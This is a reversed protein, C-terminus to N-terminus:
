PTSRLSRPSRTPSSRLGRGHRPDGAPERVVPRPDQRPLSPTRRQLGRLVRARRTPSEVAQYVEGPPVQVGQTVMKFHHILAEMSEEMIHHLYAPDNGIGDPGVSLKAPWAIKPDEIMVPGPEELRELCQQIIKMSERMEDLASWTARTRTARPAPRRVDFDYTEYGCYPM